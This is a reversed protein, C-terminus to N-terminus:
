HLSSALTSRENVKLMTAFDISIKKLCKLFLEIELFIVMRRLKLEIQRSRILAHSFLPGGITNSLIRWFTDRTLDRLISNFNRRITINQLYFKKQLTELFNEVSAM